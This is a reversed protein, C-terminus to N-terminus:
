EITYWRLTDTSANHGRIKFPGEQGLAALEEREEDTLRMDPRQQAADLIDWIRRDDDTM